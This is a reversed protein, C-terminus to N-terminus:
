IRFLPPRPPGCRRGPDQVRAQFPGAGSLPPYATWGSLPAGGPVFFATLLVLLALATTWFSLMNLTPFAMERAGLQAPLIFNGFASQPVTTLVFFIMLTGHMTMLSLYQEPTMVGLGPITAEPHVLHFRM